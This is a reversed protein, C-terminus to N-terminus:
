PRPDMLEINFKEVNAVSFGGMSFAGQHESMLTLVLQKQEMVLLENDMINQDLLALIKLTEAELEESDLVPCGDEEPDLEGLLDVDDDDCDINNKVMGHIVFLSDIFCHFGKVSEIQDNYFIVVGNKFM